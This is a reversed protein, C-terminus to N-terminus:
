YPGGEITLFVQHESILCVTCVNVNLKFRRSLLVVYNNPVAVEAPKGDFRVWIMGVRDLNVVEIAGVVKISVFTARGAELRVPYSLYPGGEIHLPEPM